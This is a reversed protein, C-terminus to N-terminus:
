SKVIYDRYDMDEELIHEVLWRELFANVMDGIEFPSEAARRYTIKVTDLWEVFARHGAMHEELDPYGGKRMMAEERAFHGAAYEELRWIITDLFGDTMDADELERVLAFLGQHDADIAANGVSYESKWQLKAM